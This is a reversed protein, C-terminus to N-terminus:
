KVAFYARAKESRVHHIISRKSTADGVSFPSLFKDRKILLKNFM